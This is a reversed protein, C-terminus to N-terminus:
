NKNLFIKMECQAAIKGKCFVKGTIITVEFIQNTIAIETFIEEGIKPFFFIKLNKIAGIYGNLVPSNQEHAIYGARAAASQAINEILGPEKLFGKEVFLSNAKVFFTTLCDVESWKLLKDVMIIPERQPIYKLIGASNNEM